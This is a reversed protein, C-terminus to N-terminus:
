HFVFMGLVGAGAIVAIPHIKGQFRTLILFAGAAMLGEVPGTVVGRGYSWAAFLLLSLVAARLGRQIRLSINNAPMRDRFLLAIALAILGPSVVVATAVLAGPIGAARYGVFTAGNVAVPGPTMQAIAVIKSMEAMTLLGRGVLEHQMLPVTVLGGGYAGIGIIGFSIILSWFVQM